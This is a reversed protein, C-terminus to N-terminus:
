GELLVMESGFGPGVAALLAKKGPGPRGAKLIDQMVFLVSASALNGVEALSARSPAIEEDTLKFAKQYTELIRTGGPHLIWAAIDERVVEQERLFSQITNRFPGLLIEPIHRSLLLRMGDGTFRWGMADVTGSYLESRVGLIKPGSQSVSEGTVLVAAAGDGFLASGVVDVPDLFRPSFVQGSLEVALILVRAKPEMRVLDAARVLAGAGGACGLGFIPWRRCTSRLGLEPALLADLSPTALGTTTVVILHDIRDPPTGASELCERAARRALARAHQVYADNREMFPRDELYTEAPFAFHRKRVGSSRFVRLVKRLDPHQAYVKECAALVEEQSLAHAPVATAISAV